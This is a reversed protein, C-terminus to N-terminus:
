PSKMFIMKRPVAAERGVASLAGGQMAIFKL